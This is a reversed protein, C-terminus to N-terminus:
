AHVDVVLGLWSDSGQIVRVAAQATYTRVRLAALGAGARDPHGAHGPDLPTRRTASAADPLPGSGTPPAAPGTWPILAGSRSSAMRM